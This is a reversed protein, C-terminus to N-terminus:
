SGPKPILKVTQSLTFHLFSFKETSWAALSEGGMTLVESATGKHSSTSMSQTPGEHSSQRRVGM